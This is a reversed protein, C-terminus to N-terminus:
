EIDGVGQRAHGQTQEQARESLGHKLRDVEHRREQERLEKQTPKEDLTGRHRPV